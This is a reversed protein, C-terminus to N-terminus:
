PCIQAIRVIAGIRAGKGDKLEACAFSAQLERGNKGKLVVEKLGGSKALLHKRVQTRQKPTIYTDIKTGLIKKIPFGLMRAFHGNAYTIRLKSDVACVGDSTVSLLASNLQSCERLENKAALEGSIDEGFVLLSYVYGEKDKVPFLTLKLHRGTSEPQLMLKQAKGSCASKLAATFGKKFENPILTTINKGLASSKEVGLAAAARSNLSSITGDANLSIIAAPSENFCANGRAREDDLERKLSTECTIDEALLLILGQEGDRRSQATRVSLYAERGDPGTLKITSQPASGSLLASLAKQSDKHVLGDLQKGVLSNRPVGICDEFAKNAYSIKGDKAVLALPSPLGDVLSAYATESSALRAALLDSQDLLQNIGSVMQEFGKVNRIRRGKNSGSVIGSLESSVLSIPKAIWFYVLVLLAAGTLLSAAVAFLIFKWLPQATYPESAKILVAEHGYIDNLVLYGEMADPTAVFARNADDLELGEPPMYEDLSYAEITGSPTAAAQFQLLGYKRAFILVGANGAIRQSSVQLLGRSTQVMGSLSQRGDALLLPDRAALACLEPPVGVQTGSDPDYGTSFLLQGDKSFICAYDIGMRDLQEVNFNRRTFEPDPSEAYARMGSMQAYASAYSELQSLSLASIHESVALMHEVPQRAADGADASLIPQAVILAIGACVAAIFILSIILRNGVNM